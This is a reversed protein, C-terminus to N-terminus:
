PRTIDGNVDYQQVEVTYSTAQRGYFPGTLEARRLQDDELEYTAEFTSNRRASGFLEAVVDGPVRGTVGDDTEEVDETAALWGAIGHGPDMLEAPDPSGYDAPDIEAHRDTFPLQAYVAGDVAVMPIDETLDNVRVQVTGDFAPAGTATGEIRLFGDSGPPVRETSVALDVGSTEELTQQAEALSEDSGGDSGTCGALLAPTLTAAAAAATWRRRRTARGRMVDGTSLTM